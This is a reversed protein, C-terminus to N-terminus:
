VNLEHYALSSNDLQLKQEVAARIKMRAKASVTRDNWFRQGGGMALAEKVTLQVTLTENGHPITQLVAMVEM